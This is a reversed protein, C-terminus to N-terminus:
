NFEVDRSQTAVAWVDDAGADTAMSVAQAAREGLEAPM